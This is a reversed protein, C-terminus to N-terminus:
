SPKALLAQAKAIFDEATMQKHHYKHVLALFAEQALPELLVIAQAIALPNM